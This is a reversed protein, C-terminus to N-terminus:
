EVAEVTAEIVSQWPFGGCILVIRKTLIGWMWSLGGAEVGGSGRRGQIGFDM